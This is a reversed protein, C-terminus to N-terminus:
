ITRDEAIIAVFTYRRQADGDGLSVFHGYKDSGGGCSQIM